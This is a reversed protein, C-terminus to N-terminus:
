DPPLLCFLLSNGVATEPSGPGAGPIVQCGDAGPIVLTTSPGGDLNLATQAGLDLAIRTLASITLGDAIGPQYGEAILFFCSGDARIAVATRPHAAYFYPADDASRDEPVPLGDQVLLPGGDPRGGGLCTIIDAWDPSLACTITVRDGRRLLRLAQVAGGAASLVMRGPRLPTGQPIAGTGAVTVRSRGHIGVVEGELPIGPLLDGPVQLLVEYGGDAAMTARYWDPTYLVLGNDLRAQYANDPRSQFDMVDGRLCNLAQIPTDALLVQGERSASFSLTLVPRGIRARGEATLGFVWGQPFEGSSLVRGARMTLGLPGGAKMDFFDGNIGALVSLGPEQAKYWALSGSTTQLGRIRGERSALALRLRPSTLPRAELVHLRQALPPESRSQLTYEFLDLGEGLPLSRSGAIGYDTFDAAGAAQLLLCFLALCPLLSRNKM